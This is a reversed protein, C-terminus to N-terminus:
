QSCNFRRGFRLINLNGALKMGPIQGKLRLPRWPGRSGTRRACGPCPSWPWPSAPSSSCCGSRVAGRSSACTLLSFSPLSSSKRPVSNCPTKCFTFVSIKCAQLNCWQISNSSHCKRQHALLSIWGLTCVANAANFSSM